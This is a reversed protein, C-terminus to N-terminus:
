CSERKAFAYGNKGGNKVVYLAHDARNYLETFTKGDRPYVAIGLSCPLNDNRLNAVLENIKDKLRDMDSFNILFAAFEDGGIRGFLDTNRFVRKLHRAISQLVQDGHLHGLSDNVQKFNDADLMILVHSHLHSEALDLIREVSADFGRRNMLTTLADTQSLGILRLAEVKEEHIDQIRGAIRAVQGQNDFMSTLLFRTWIYMESDGFIKSLRVEIKTGRIRERVITGLTASFRVKDGPHMNYLNGTMLNADEPFVSGFMRVWNKERSIFLFRNQLVSWEFIVEDTQELLIRYREDSTRLQVFAEHTVTADVAMGFLVPTGNGLKDEHVMFSCSVWRIGYEQLTRYEFSGEKRNQMSYQVMQRVLSRDEHHVTRLFSNDCVSILTERDPFGMLSIFPDSTFLFSMPKDLTTKFLGGPIHTTLMDLENNLKKLQDTDMSVQDILLNFSDAIKSFDSNGELEIHHFYDNNRVNEIGNILRQVPQGIQNSIFQLALILAVLFLLTFFLFLPISELVPLYIERTAIGTFVTWDLEPIYQYQGLSKEDNFAFELTGKKNKMTDIMALKDSLDSINDFDQISWFDGDMRNTAVISGNSDFVLRLTSKFMGEDLALERLYSLGLVSIIAGKYDSDDFLPMGLMVYVDESTEAPSTIVPSVMRQRNGGQLCSIDLIRSTRAPYLPDHFLLINRQEDEIYLAKTHPHVQTYYILNEQLESATGGQELRSLFTNNEPIAHMQVFENAIYTQIKNAYLDADYAVTQRVFPDFRTTFSIMAILIVLLSPILSISFIITQLRRTFRLM